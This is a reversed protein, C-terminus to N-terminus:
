YRYYKKFYEQNIICYNQIKNLDMQLIQNDKIKDYESKHRTSSEFHYALATGCYINKIWAKFM